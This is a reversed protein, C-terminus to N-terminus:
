DVDPARPKAETAEREPERWRLSVASAVQAALSRWGPLFILVNRHARVRDTWKLKHPDAAGLFDYERAGDFFARKVSEDIVAAGCDRYRQDYSTKMQGVWGNWKVALVYAIPEAGTYLVNAVLADSRALEPVLLEHYHQEQPRQTIAKSSAAKWSSDEVHFIAELLERCEEVQTFWRMRTGPIKEMQRATRLLNARFKRTRGQLFEEWSCDISIYPSDEGREEVVLLGRSRAADVLARACGDDRLNLARILHLHSKNAHECLLDVLRAPEMQSLPQAHYSVVNSIFEMSQMPVRMYSVRDVYVALTAQEHGRRLDMLHCRHLLGHSVAICRTWTAGLSINAGLQAVVADWRGISIEDLVALPRMAPEIM